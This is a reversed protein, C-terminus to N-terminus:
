YAFLLPNKMPKINLEQYLHLTTSWSDRRSDKVFVLNPLYHKGLDINGFLSKLEREAGVFKNTNQEM